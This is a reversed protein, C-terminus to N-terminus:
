SNPYYHKKHKSMLKILTAFTDGERLYTFDKHMVQHTEISQLINVERGEELHIGERALQMTDISEKMITKTLSTGIISAFMAPVIVEFDGTLEFLLFISTLPAHTTAALFAGMGVLAFFWTQIQLDTFTHVVSGFLAGFVAGIFLSPGFIGGVNGSGITVSTAVIKLVVLVVLIGITYNNFHLVSRIVDYGEGLVGASFLGLFGVIAAGLIPKSLPPINMKQFISSTSYFIRIFVCSLLGLLVGMVCVLLFDSFQLQYNLVDFLAVDSYYSRSIATAVGCAIVIAGFSELGFNGLMIVEQAFLVGALPANFQAAIASASGCAILVKLRNTSMAFLRGIKSGAAGGIQAIPGEVGVSGGSTITITTTAMKAFIERTKILGGQLHISKLFNPMSYGGVVFPFIRMLIVLIVAGVIPIIAVSYNHVNDQLWISVAKVFDGSHELMTRFLVSLFGTSVGTLIALFLLSNIHSLFIKRSLKRLLHKKKINQFFKSIGKTNM